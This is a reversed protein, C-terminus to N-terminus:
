GNEIIKIEDETLGYLQYVIQDIQRECQKVQAQKTLDQLYDDDKTIQLIYNVLGVLFEGETSHVKCFPLNNVEYSNVNSNTSFVKFYWNLLSSNLLALLYQYNINEDNILVYNASHACYTGEDLYTAKLRIREDVGTIGQTIIRKLNHHRSKPGKNKMLYGKEDLYVTKGQSMKKATHWRQIAAGKIVPAYAYKVAHLLAGHVTLNIEGQYCFSVEKFKPFLSIRRLIPLEKESILPIPANEEDFKVIDINSFAIRRGTTLYRDDWINLDFIYPQDLKLSASLLICVSMKANEFVRRQVDDREPFSDIRIIHQDRLFHKRIYKASNDALFSNQFIECIIGNQKQLTISKALFVKYANLKGGKAIDYVPLARLQTIEDKKHGEYVDYPPNAIVVDFGGKKHFVESFYLNWLFFPKIQRGSTFEKLQKEASELDFGFEKYLEGKEQRILEERQAKNPLVSYKNEIDKLRNFYDAQQTQLKTEFIKILLNEVEEKLGAKQTVNSENLFADKKRQFQEILENIEDKFTLGEKKQEYDFNLGIFESILSNGQM